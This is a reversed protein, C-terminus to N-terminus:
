RSRPRFAEPHKDLALLYYPTFQRAGHAERAEPSWRTELVSRPIEVPDIGASRIEIEVRSAKEASIFWYAAEGVSAGFTALGHNALFLLKNGGVVDALAYGEGHTHTDFTSQVGWFVASENNIPSLTRGSSSWARSFTAHTHVVANVHRNRELIQPHLHMAGRHVEGTGAHITGEYDLLLLDDIGILEFSSVFPNIWFLDPHIPDRASIHGMIGEDYGGARGFTRFAAVIQRKRHEREALLAEHRQEADPTTITM